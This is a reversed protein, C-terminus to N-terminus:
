RRRRKIQDLRDAAFNKVTMGSRKWDVLFDTLWEGIERASLDSREEDLYRWLDPADRKIKRLDATATDLADVGSPLLRRREYHTAMSAAVVMEHAKM